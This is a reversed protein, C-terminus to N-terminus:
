KILVFVNDPFLAKSLEWKIKWTDTEFGKVEHYEIHGDCYIVKFDVFYNSIHRDNVRLELKFQPIWERIEKAKILWDLQQAYSCELTSHYNRGNYSTIKSNYKSRALFKNIQNKM